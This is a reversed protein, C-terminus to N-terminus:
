LTQRATPKAIGKLEALPIDKAFLLFERMYTNELSEERVAAYLTNFVGKGLSRAVVYSQSTYEEAAWSPLSCLGRGSAVLAVMMVTLEVTRLQGPEVDAPMLFTRFIDMKGKPVPYIILTEKALAKAEIIAKNVLRHDQPMLLKTEYDFLPIYKIGNLPEPDATVVLGLEGAMLGDLGNFAFGGLIDLEVASWQCRYQDLTPLLWMYCSHCDIALNLRGGEGNLMKDLDRELRQFRPIMERASDLVRGGAATLRLPKVKRNVVKAGIRKEVEGLQHSLASPTM